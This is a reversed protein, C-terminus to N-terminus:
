HMYIWVLLDTNDHLAQLFTAAEWRSALMGVICLACVCLAWNTVAAADTLGSAGGGRFWLFRYPPALASRSFVDQLAKDNWLGMQAFSVCVCVCLKLSKLVLLFYSWHDSAM